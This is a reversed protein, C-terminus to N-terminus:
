PASSKSQTPAPIARDLNSAIRQIVAQRYHNISEFVTVELQEITILGKGFLDLDCQLKIQQTAFLGATQLERLIVEAGHITNAHKSKVAKRTTYWTWGAEIANKAGLAGSAALGAFYGPSILGHLSSLADAAFGVTGFILVTAMDGKTSVKNVLKDWDM